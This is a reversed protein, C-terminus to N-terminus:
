RASVEHPGNANQRSRYVAFGSTEGLFDYRESVLRVLEQSYATNYKDATHHIVIKPPSNIITQKVQELQEPTRIGLATNYFRFPNRRGSLFYLEANTPLAFISDGPTTESEIVKLIASYRLSEDRDIRLTARPISSETNSLTSINRLGQFFDAFRGPLPQGAHYYVSVFSLLIAAFAVVYQVRSKNISVLWLLGVTSLGATYYLYIPIQFHVSVIAYFTALVPLTYAMSGANTGRTLFRLLVVGQLFALLPLAIWYLGNPQEAFMRGRFLETFGTVVLRGYLQLGMFPLKTLGVANVITDNLWAAVSGHVIHYLLLPLAAVVGGIVLGGVMRM